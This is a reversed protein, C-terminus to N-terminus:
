MYKLSKSFNQFIGDFFAEYLIRLRRVSPMKILFFLSYSLLFKLRYFLCAIFNYSISFNYIRNRIFCYQKWDSNSYIIAVRKNFLYYKEQRDRPHLHIAKIVTIPAYGLKKGRIDYNNEDGWIFMEKKPYGVDKLFEKSYLIGNFPNARNEIVAGDVSKSILDKCTVGDFATLNADDDAVVLPSIYHYSDLYVSLEQLCSRDPEGDDDMVWLGDYEADENATKMGLFFGGAGGENKANLIYKFKIGNRLTNYYGWEKVSEVTGDTSANDAIYVVKPPYTQAVVADLCRKLLSKRNYTVIVCAINYSMM